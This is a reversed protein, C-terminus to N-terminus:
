TGDAEQRPSRWRHQVSGVNEKLASPRKLSLSTVSGPSLSQAGLSKTLSAPFGPSRPSPVLAAWLWPEGESRCM